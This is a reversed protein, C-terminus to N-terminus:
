LEIQGLSGCRDCKPCITYCANSFDKECDNHLLINCRVCKIYKIETINKSCLFCSQNAPTGTYMATCSTFSGM